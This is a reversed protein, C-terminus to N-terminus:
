DWIRLASEGYIIQDALPMDIRPLTALTPKLKEQIAQKFKVSSIPMLTRIAMWLGCWLGLTEVLAFPTAFNYKLDQYFGQFMGLFSRGKQHHSIRETEEGIPEEFVEYRPKLLVPCCDKVLDTNYSHVSVPLGFFGAFGFTEYNGEREIRRRFPESRVDICFVIQADPRALPEKRKNLKVVKPITLKM